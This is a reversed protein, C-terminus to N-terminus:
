WGLKIGLAGFSCVSARFFRVFFSVSCCRWRADLTACTGVGSAVAAELAAESDPGFFKCGSIWRWTWLLYARASESMKVRLLGFASRLRERRRGYPLPVSPDGSFLERCGLRRNCYFFHAGFDIRARKSADIVFSRVFFLLDIARRSPGLAGPVSTQWICNSPNRLACM